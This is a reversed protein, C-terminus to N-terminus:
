RNIDSKLQMVRIGVTCQRESCGPATLQAEHRGTKTVPGAVIVIDHKEPSRTLVEGEPDRLILSVHSCQQNCAAIVAYTTGTQLDLPERVSAGRAATRIRPEGWSDFGRKALTEAEVLLKYDVELRPLPSTAQPKSGVFIPETIYSSTRGTDCDKWHQRGDDATFIMRCPREGTKPFVFEIRPGKVQWRASRRAGTKFSFEARGNARMRVQWPDGDKATKGKLTKGSIARKLDNGALYDALTM